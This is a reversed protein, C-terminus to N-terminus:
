CIPLLHLIAYPRSPRRFLNGCNDSSRPWGDRSAPQSARPRFLVLKSAPAAIAVPSWEPSLQHGNLRSIHELAALLLSHSHYSSAHRSFACVSSSFVFLLFSSAHIACCSLCRRRAAGNVLHPHNFIIGQGRRRRKERKSSRLKMWSDRLRSCSRRGHPKQGKARARSRHRM